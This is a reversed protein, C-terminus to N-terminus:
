MQFNLFEINSILTKKENLFKREDNIKSKERIRKLKKAENKLTWLLECM